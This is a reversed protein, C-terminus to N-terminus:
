LFLCVKPESVYILEMTERPWETILHANEILVWSGNKTADRLAMNLRTFKAKSDMESAIITDLAIAIIKTPQPMSKAFRSIEATTNVFSNALTTSFCM